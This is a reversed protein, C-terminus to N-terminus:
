PYCGREIYGGGGYPWCIKFVSGCYYRYGNVPCGSCCDDDSSCSAWRTGCSRLERNEGHYDVDGRLSRQTLHDELDSDEAVVVDELANSNNNNDNNDGVHDELDDDAAATATVYCSPKSCCLFFALLFFHIISSSKMMITLQQIHQNTIKKKSNKKTLAVFHVDNSVPMPDGCCCFM